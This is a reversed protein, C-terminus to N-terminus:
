MPAITRFVFDAQREHYNNWYKDHFGAAMPEAAVTGKLVQFGQGLQVGGHPGFLYRNHMKVTSVSDDVLNMRLVNDKLGARTKIQKLKERREADSLGCDKERIWITASRCDAEASYSLLDAMVRCHSERSLSFKYDVFHVVPSIQLIVECANVISESTAPIDRGATAPLKKAFDLGYCTDPIESKSIAGAADPFQFKNERWNETWSRALNFAPYRRLKLIKKSKEAEILLTELMYVEKDTAQASLKKVESVWNMPYQYIYRGSYPGFKQLLLEWQDPNVCTVPDVGWKDNM